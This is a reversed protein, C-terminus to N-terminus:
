AVTAVAVDSKWDINWEVSLNGLTVTIEKSRSLFSRDILFDFSSGIELRVLEIKRNMAEYTQSLPMYESREESEDYHVDLTVPGSAGGVDAGNWRVSLDSVVLQDVHKLLEGGVSLPPVAFRGYLRGQYYMDTLNGWFPQQDGQVKFSIIPLDDFKPLSDMKVSYFIYVNASNYWVEDFQVSTEANPIDIVQGIQRALGLEEAREM